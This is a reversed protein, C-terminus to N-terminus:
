RAAHARLTHNSDSMSRLTHAHSLNHCGSRPHATWTAFYAQAPETKVFIHELPQIAGVRAHIILFQSMATFIHTKM